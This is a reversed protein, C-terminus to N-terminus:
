LFDWYGAQALLTLDLGTVLYNLYVLDNVNFVGLNGGMLGATEYEVNDVLTGKYRGTRIKGIKGCHIPVCCM